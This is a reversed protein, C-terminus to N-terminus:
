TMPNVNPFGLLSQGHLEYAVDNVYYHTAGVNIDRLCRQLMSELRVSTGGGFYFARGVVDRAVEFVMATSARLEVMTKVPPRGGKLLTEWIEKTLDIYLSRVARLRLNAEGIFRQFVARDALTVKKAYGRQKSTALEAIEDLARRTVGVAFGPLVNLALGAFGLNYTPGGRLPKMAMDPNLSLEMTFAKPVFLNDTSFDCSGTGQLGVVNWNDIIQVDSVPLIAVLLSPPQGEGKDVMANPTIWGSHRIGSAWSWRGSLRYGGDVPVARGPILSGAIFPVDGDKLVRQLIEDSLFATM